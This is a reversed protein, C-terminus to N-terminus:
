RAAQSGCVSPRNVIPRCTALRGWMAALRKLLHLCVLIRSPPRQLHPWLSRRPRHLQRAPLQTDPLAFQAHRRRPLAPRTRNRLLQGLARAESGPHPQRELLVADSTRGAIPTYGVRNQTYLLFDNDFRSVFIADDNTEFFLGGTESKLMHGFGKTFSAGGRYDQLIHHTLYGVAAGAEAWGMLGHWVNTAAGLGPILASESLYQPAIGSNEPGITGRTDGVFRLSVYPHVPSNLHLETKIQAYSFFDSWRSSYLPFM